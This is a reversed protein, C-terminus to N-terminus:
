DEKKTGKKILTLGVFWIILSTFLVVSAAFVSYSQSTFFGFLGVGTGNVGIRRLDEAIEELNARVFCKVKIIVPKNNQCFRLVVAKGKDFWRIFFKSNKM